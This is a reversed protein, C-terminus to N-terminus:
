HLTVYTIPTNYEETEDEDDSEQDQDEDESAEDLPPTIDAPEDGAAEEVQPPYWPSWGPLGSPHFPPWSTPPAPQQPPIPHDVTVQTDHPEIYIHYQEGMRFPGAHQIVM